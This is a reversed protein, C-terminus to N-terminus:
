LIVGSLIRIMLFFVVLLFVFCFLIELLASLSASFIFGEVNRASIYSLKIEIPIM